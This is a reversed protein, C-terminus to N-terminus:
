GLCFFNVLSIPCIDRVAHYLFEILTNNFDATAQELKSAFPILSVDDVHIWVQMSLGGQLIDERMMQLM